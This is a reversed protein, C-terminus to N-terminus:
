FSGAARTFLGALRGGFLTAAVIAAIVVLLLILVFESLAQGEARNM